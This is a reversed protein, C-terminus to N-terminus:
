MELQASARLLTAVVEVPLYGLGSFEMLAKAKELEDRSFESGPALTTSEIADASLSQLINL